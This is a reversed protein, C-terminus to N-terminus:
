PKEECIPTYILFMQFSNLFNNMIVSNSLTATFMFMDLFIIKYRHTHCHSMEYYNNIYTYEHM